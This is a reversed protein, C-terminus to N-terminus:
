IGGGGVVINICHWFCLCTPGAKTCVSFPQSHRKDELGLAFVMMLVSVGTESSLSLFFFFM